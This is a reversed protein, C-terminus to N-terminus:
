RPSCTSAPTMSHWYKEVLDPLQISSSAPVAEKTPSFCSRTILSFLFLTPRSSHVVRAARGLRYCTSRQVKKLLKASFRTPSKASTANDALKPLMETSLMPLRYVIWLCTCLTTM